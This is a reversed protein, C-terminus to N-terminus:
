GFCGTDIMRQVSSQGAQMLTCYAAHKKHENQKWANKIYILLNDQWGDCYSMLFLVHDKGLAIIANSVTMSQWFSHFKEIQEKTKM